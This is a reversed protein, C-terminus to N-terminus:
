LYCLTANPIVLTQVLSSLHEPTAFSVLEGCALVAGLASAQPIAQKPPADVFTALSALLAAWLTGEGVARLFEDRRQLGTYREQVNRFLGKPKNPGYSKVFM